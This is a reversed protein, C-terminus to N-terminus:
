LDANEPLIQVINAGKGRYTFVTQLTKVIVLPLIALDYGAFM